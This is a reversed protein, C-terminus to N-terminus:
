RTMRGHRAAWAADYFAGAMAQAVGPALGVIEVTGGPTELFLSLGNPSPRAATPPLITTVLYNITATM